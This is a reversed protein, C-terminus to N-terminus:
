CRFIQNPSTTQTFDSFLPALQKNRKGRRKSGLGICVSWAFPLCKTPTSTPKHTHVTSYLVTCHFSTCTRLVLVFVFGPTYIRAATQAILLRIDMPVTKWGDYYSKYRIQRIWYSLIHLIIQHKTSPFTNNRKSYRTKLNSLQYKSQKSRALLKSDRNPAGKEPPAPVSTRSTTNMKQDKVVTKCLVSFLSSSKIQSKSAHFRNETGRHATRCAKRM